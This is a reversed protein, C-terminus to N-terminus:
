FPPRPALGGMLGGEERRSKLLHRQNPTKPCLTAGETLRTGTRGGRPGVSFRQPAGPDQADGVSLATIRDREEPGKGAM